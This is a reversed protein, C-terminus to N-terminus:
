NMVQAAKEASQDETMPQAVPPNCQRLDECTTTRPLGQRMKEALRSDNAAVDWVVVRGDEPGLQEIRL